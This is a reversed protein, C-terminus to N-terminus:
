GHCSPLLSQSIWFRRPPSATNLLPVCAPQIGSEVDGCGSPWQLCVAGGRDGTARKCATLRGVGNPHCAQENIFSELEQLSFNANFTSLFKQLDVADIRGDGDGAGM